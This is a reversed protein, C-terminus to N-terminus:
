RYIEARIRGKGEIQYVQEYDKGQVLYAAIEYDYLGTLYMVCIINEDRERDVWLMIPTNTENRLIDGIVEDGKGSFSLCEVTGMSSTTWISKKYEEPEGDNDFDSYYCIEEGQTVEQEANGTLIEYDEVRKRLEPSKYVMKEALAMWSQSICDLVRVQYSDSVFSVSVSEALEGKEYYYLSIGCYEKRRYNFEKRYIYNKGGYSICLWDELLQPTSSTKVYSGDKQGQYLISDTFGGSGGWEKEAILDLIGDNDVDAELMTYSGLYVAQALDVRIEMNERALARVEEDTLLRGTALPELLEPEKQKEMAKAIKDLLEQTILEQGDTLNHYERYVEEPVWGGFFQEYSYRRVDPNEDWEEMPIRKDLLVKKDETGEWVQISVTDESCERVCVRKLLLENGEWKWLGEYDSEADEEFDFHTDCTYIIKQEGLLHLNFFDFSIEEQPYVAKEYCQHEHNWLYALEASLRLDVYGDFNLDELDGSQIIMSGSLNQVPSEYSGEQYIRLEYDESMSRGENLGLLRVGAEPKIDIYSRCVSQGFSVEKEGEGTTRWGFAKEEKLGGIGYRNEEWVEELLYVENGLVLIYRRYIEDEMQFSYSPSIKDADGEFVLLVDGSVEKLVASALEIEKEYEVQFHALRIRPPAAEGEGMGSLELVQGKEKSDEVVFVSAEEPLHVVLQGFRLENGVVEAEEPVYVLEERGVGTGSELVEAGHWGMLVEPVVLLGAGMRIGEGVGQGCGALLFAAGLLWGQLWGRVWAMRRM